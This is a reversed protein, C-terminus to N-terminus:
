IDEGAARRVCDVIFQPNSLFPSHGEQCREVQLAGESQAVMREQVSLPLARDNECVIYTSPIGRYATYTVPVSLPGVPYSGLLDLAEEVDAPDCRNYFVERAAERDVIMAGDETFRMGGHKAVYEQRQRELEEEEPTQPKIQGVHNQGEPLAMAAMYMLQLVGGKLGASERTSKGLGKVAESMPIGGFSHAVTIVDRGADIYGLIVKRIAEADTAWSSLPPSSDVSPLTVGVAQYNFKALGDVLRRYHQPRHWSGPVIVIAPRIM